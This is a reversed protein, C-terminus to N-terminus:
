RLDLEFIQSKSVGSPEYSLYRGEENVSTPYGSDNHFRIAFRFSDSSIELDFCQNLFKIDIQPSRIKAHLDLFSGGKNNFKEFKLHQIIVSHNKESKRLDIRKGERDKKVLRDLLGNLYVIFEKNTMHEPGFLSM